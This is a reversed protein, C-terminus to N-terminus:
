GKKIGNKIGYNKLVEVFQNKGGRGRADILVNGEWINFFIFLIFTTVWMNRGCMSLQHVHGLPGSM